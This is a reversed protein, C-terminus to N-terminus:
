HRFPDELLNLGAEEEALHFKHLVRHTIPTMVIGITAIFILGSFLAYGSAFVKAWASPLERIPGMGGLIMSAELLSDIWPFGAIYHYGAIGVGLAWVVLFGAMLFSSALRRAFVSMPALKEHRRELRLHNIRM